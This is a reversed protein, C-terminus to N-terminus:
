RSPQHSNRAKRSVRPRKKRQWTTEGKKTRGEQPSQGLQTLRGGGRHAPPQNQKCADQIAQAQRETVLGQALLNKGASGTPDQHQLAEQDEELAESEQGHFEEEDLRGQRANTRKYAFGAGFDVFEHHDWLAWRKKRIRLRCSVTWPACSSPLTSYTLL